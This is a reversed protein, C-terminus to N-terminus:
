PLLAPLPTPLTSPPHKEELPSRTWLLTSCLRALSLLPCSPTPHMSSLLPLVREDPAELGFFEQAFTHASPLFPLLPHLCPHLPFKREEPAELGFFEQAFPLASPLFPLLPHLCSLLPLPREEPARLLNHRRYFQLLECERRSDM